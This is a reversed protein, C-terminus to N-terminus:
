VMLPHVQAQFVALVAVLSGKFANRASETWLSTQRDLILLQLALAAPVGLGAWGRPGQASAVAAPPQEEAAPVSASRAQTKSKSLLVGLGFTWNPIKFVLKCNEVHRRVMQFAKSM